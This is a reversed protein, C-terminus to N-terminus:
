NVENKHIINLLENIDEDRNFFLRNYEDSLENKRFWSTLLPHSELLKEHSPENYSVTVIDGIQDECHTEIDRIAQATKEKIEAIEADEFLPEFHEKLKKIIEITNKDQPEDENLNSEFYKKTTEFVNKPILIKGTNMKIYGHLYGLEQDTIISKKLLVKHILPRRDLDRTTLLLAIRVYWDDSNRDADNKILRFSLTSLTGLVDDIRQLYCVCAPYDADLNLFVAFGSYEAPVGTSTVDLNMNVMCLDNSKYFHLKGKQYESKIRDHTKLFAINLEIENKDALFGRILHESNSFSFAFRDNDKFISNLFTKTDNAIKTDYPKKSFPSRSDAYDINEANNDDNDDVFESSPAKLIDEFFTDISLNNSQCFSLLVLTPVSTNGNIYRFVKLNNCTIDKGLEDTKLIKKIEDNIEDAVQGHSKGNANIIKGMAEGILADFKNKNFDKENM